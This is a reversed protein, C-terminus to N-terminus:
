GVMNGAAAYPVHQGELQHQHHQAVPLYVQLPQHHHYHHHAQHHPLEGRILVLAIVTVTVYDRHRGSVRISRWKDKQLLILELHVRLGTIKFLKERSRKAPREKALCAINPM